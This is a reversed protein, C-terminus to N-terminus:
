KAHNQSSSFSLKRDSMEVTEGDSTSGEGGENMSEKIGDNRCAKPLFRDVEKMIRDAKEEDYTVHFPSKYFKLMVVKGRLFGSGGVVGRM